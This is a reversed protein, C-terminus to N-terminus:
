SLFTKQIIEEVEQISFFHASSETTIILKENLLYGSMGYDHIKYLARDRYKMDSLMGMHEWIYIEGTVPHIIQFDPYVIRGNYLRFPAEVRFAIGHRYLASAIDAEAKSAHFTGAASVYVLPLSTYPNREYPENAWAHAAASSKNLMPEVLVRYADNKLYKESAAEIADHKRMYLEIAAIEQEIENMKLKLYKKQALAEAYAVDRRRIYKESNNHIHYWEVYKGAHARCELSGRPMKKLAHKIETRQTKLKEYEQKIIGDIM